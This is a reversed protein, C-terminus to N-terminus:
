CLIASFKCRYRKRSASLLEPRHYAFLICGYTCSTDPGVRVSSAQLANFSFSRCFNHMVTWLCTLVFAEFPLSSVKDNIGSGLSPVDNLLRWCRGQYNAGEYLWVEGRQPAQQVSVQMHLTQTPVAMVLIYPLESVWSNTM